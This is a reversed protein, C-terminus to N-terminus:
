AQPEAPLGETTRTPFREDGVFLGTTLRNDVFPERCSSLERLASRGLCSHRPLPFNASIANAMLMTLRVIRWSPNEPLQALNRDLCALQM